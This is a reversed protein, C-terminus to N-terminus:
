SVLYIGLESVKENLASRGYFIGTTCILSLILVSATTLASLFVHFLRRWGSFRLTERGDVCSQVTSGYFEPRVCDLLMSNHMIQDIFTIYECSIHFVSCYYDYEGNEGSKQWLGALCNNLNLLTALLQQGEFVRVSWIIVWVTIFLSYGPTIAVLLTTELYNRRQTFYNLM